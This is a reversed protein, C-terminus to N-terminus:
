FVSYMFYIINVFYKEYVYPKKTEL